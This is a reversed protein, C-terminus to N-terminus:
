LFAEVIAVIDQLHLPIKTGFPGDVTVVLDASLPKLQLYTDIHSTDSYLTINFDREESLLDAALHLKGAPLCWELAKIDVHRHNGVTFQLLLDSIAGAEHTGKKDTCTNNLPPNQVTAPVHDVGPSVHVEVRGTGTNSTKIFVLDPTGDHDYDALLWTGDTEPAFTTGTELIRTQYNSSGSAVHVEVKGTGTNSTKIFVLDPKGSHQFDALLWTGDTEPAFTTGTELIRTQYNSSGSAVHVEVKGTGTNSTKIFVLDPKGSHEFDGLLWTGDTEPAFTTGTELTRTQYYSAGSAVHVEIKGTGTSGTKIFVLDPINGHNYDALLWAGDTEPGFTTGVEIIRTQYNSM